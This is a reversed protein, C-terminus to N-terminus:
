PHHETLDTSQATMVVLIICLWLLLVVLSPWYEKPESLLLIGHLLLVTRNTYILRLGCFIGDGNNLPVYVYYVPCHSGHVWGLLGQLLLDLVVRAAIVLLSHTVLVLWDESLPFKRDSLRLNFRRAM